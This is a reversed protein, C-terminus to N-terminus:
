DMKVAHGLLGLNYGLFETKELLYLYSLVTGVITFSVSYYLTDTRDM